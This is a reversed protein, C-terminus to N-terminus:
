NNDGSSPRGGMGGPLMGGMMAGLDFKQWGAPAMFLSDPLSTKEISTVELRFKEQGGEMGVVRLPFFASGKIATEWESPAQSHRGPGGGGMSVGGFTGLQDTAWIDTIGKSTTVEYKTCEYGLITEKSSTAKFSVDSSPRPAGSASPPRQVTSPDPLAKVMYMRQQSMLIIMQRNKFDTIVAGVGKANGMEMRLYGEKISYELTQSPDKSNTSSMKMSVKGEFTEAALACPLLLACIPVLSRILKM